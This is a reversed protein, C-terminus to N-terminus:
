ETHTTGFSLSHVTMDVESHRKPVPIANMARINKRELGEKSV